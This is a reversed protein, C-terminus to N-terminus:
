TKRIAMSVLVAMPQGNVEFVVVICPANGPHSIEHDHGFVVAPLAIQHTYETTSLAAKANGAIINVTEGIGERLEDHTLSDPASSMIRSVVERALHEEFCVVVEGEVKGTFTMIASIDGFLRYNKKLFVEKKEAHLGAMTSLLDITANIYPNIVKTIVPIRIGAPELAETLKKRLVEPNMPLVMIDDAGYAILRKAKPIDSYSVAIFIQVDRFACKRRMYRTLKVDDDESDSLQYIICDPELPLIAQADAKVDGKKEDNGSNDDPDALILAVRNKAASLTSSEIAGPVSSTDIEVSPASAQEYFLTHLIEEKSVSIVSARSAIVNKVTNDFIRGCNVLVYVNKNNM